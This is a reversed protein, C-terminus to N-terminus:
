YLSDVFTARYLGFSPNPDTLQWVLNGNADVEDVRSVTGYDILTDGDPLRQASGMASGYIPKGAGDLPPTYSWVLTATHATTDLQYEVARSLSPSHDNGDDFLLIDDPAIERAYHQGSFGNIPDNVFTFDSRKGGLRWIVDGTQSDIKLVADMHRSSVLYNGDSTVDISNAHVADLPSTAFSVFSAVDAPTSATESSWAFEVGGDPALRWLTNEVVNANSGGDYATLDMQTIYVGLLLADGSPLVRMEHNDTRGGDEEPINLTGLSNGLVDVRQYTSPFATPIDLHAGFTAITYTGDPQKQFDGNGPPLEEVYWVVRGSRDVISMPTQTSGAAPGFPQKAILIYGPSVTGPQTFRQIM